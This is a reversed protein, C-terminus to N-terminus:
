KRSIPYIEHDFDFWLIKMVRGTRRGYLRVKGELRLSFLQDIDDMQLYELRKQAEPILKNVPVFHSNNGAKRGGAAREIDAWTMSEFDRLKPLIKEEWRHKGIKKWGWKGDHDIAGVQWVPHQTLAQDVDFPARPKKHELVKSINKDIRPKKRNKRGKGM